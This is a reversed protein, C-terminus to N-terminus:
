LTKIEIVVNFEGIVRRILKYLITLFYLSIFDNKDLRYYNARGNNLCVICVCKPCEDLYNRKQARIM